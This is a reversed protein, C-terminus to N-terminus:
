PENNEENLRRKKFSGPRSGTPTTQNYKGKLLSQIINNINAQNLHQGSAAKSM